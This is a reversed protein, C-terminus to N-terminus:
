ITNNLFIFIIINHQPKHYAEGGDLIIKYDCYQLCPRSDSNIPTGLVSKFLEVGFDFHGM